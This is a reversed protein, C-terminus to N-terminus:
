LLCTIGDGKIGDYVYWNNVPIEKHTVIKLIEQSLTGGVVAACAVLETGWSRAVRALLDGNVINDSLQRAKLSSKVLAELKDTSVEASLSSGEAVLTQCIFVLPPYKRLLRQVSTTDPKAIISQELPKYVATVKHHKSESNAVESDGITKVEEMYEHKDLCDVFIYGFAGFSDAAVFRTTKTARCLGNLQIPSCEKGGVDVVVDFKNLNAPKELLKSNAQIDVLPNLIKLREALVQDKPKGLDEPQFYYQVELDDETVTGGDCLTIHGVGALVLNKCAELTLAKVGIFCLSSSRLRRQAEMGWLRIQRDYLAVEEKSIGGM